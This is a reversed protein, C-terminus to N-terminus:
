TFVYHVYLVYCDILYLDAAVTHELAPVSLTSLGTSPDAPDQTKALFSKDFQLSISTWNETHSFDKTLAHLEGIRKASALSLLFITKYTLFKFSATALPEYPPETLKRLVLALDWKPVESMTTPRKIDLSRILMSIEEDNTIDTGQYKLVNSMASRYGKITSM